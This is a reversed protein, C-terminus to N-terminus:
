RFLEGTSIDPIPCGIAETRPQTIPRGALVADLADRLDHVTVQERRKGLGVYRNDIRGLYLVKGAPSLVAAQPTVTAGIKRVWMHGKDLVLPPQLQYQRAHERADDISLEPDVQILFLRVGRAGYDSDVRNLEPAYSNSIPCDPVLFVFAVARVQPDNFPRHIVGAIDLVDLEQPLSQHGTAPLDTAALPSPQRNQGCGSILMILAVVAAVSLTPRPRADNGETLTPL